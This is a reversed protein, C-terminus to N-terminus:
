QALLWALLDVRAATRINLFRSSQLWFRSLMDSKHPTIRHWLNACLDTHLLPCSAATLSRWFLEFAFGVHHEPELLCVENVESYFLNDSSQLVLGQTCHAPLNFLKRLPHTEM